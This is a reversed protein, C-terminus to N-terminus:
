PFSFIKFQKPLYFDNNQNENKREIGLLTFIENKLEVKLGSYQFANLQRVFVSVFASVCLRERVKERWRKMKKWVESEKNEYARDKLM